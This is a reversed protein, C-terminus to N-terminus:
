KTTSEPEALLLSAFAGRQAIERCTSLVSQVLASKASAATYAVGFRPSDIEGRIPRAIYGSSGDRDQVGCINLLSFGFGAGVLGRLVLSSKTTHAVDVGLGANEFLGKFYRRTGPLDLLIMPLRSLEELSVTGHEALPSPWPLLAWPPARFMAEFPQKEPTERRYTLAVDVEGEALMQNIRHMDGEKLEIRIDPFDARIAKLITPLVHPATPAYCGMRLVGAPRGTMSLLDSELVRAEDLFAELRAGVSAGLDTAVLGRAPIRRFLQQGLEAEIQDIAAVISSQSINLGQAARAISGKHLVATVYRMQKLTLNM